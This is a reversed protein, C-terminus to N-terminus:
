VLWHNDLVVYASNLSPDFVNYGLDAFAAVTTDSLVPQQGASFLTTMLEQSLPTGNPAFFTQQATESWHSNDSTLPVPGGYATMANTGIFNHAGDLLGLGQFIPGAFGIAHGMEHMIIAPWLSALDPNKFDTADLKISATLPLWQDQTGPDRVVINSTAALTNVGTVFSGSGDIRGISLDIVIDDVMNGNLDLDNHIDGTIIRSWANAAAIVDAQQGATWTGSFHIQINFEQSDAVNPNGSTYTTPLSGGGGPKGGGGGGGGPGGRAGAAELSLGGLVASHSNLIDPTSALVPDVLANDVSTDADDQLGFNHSNFRKASM